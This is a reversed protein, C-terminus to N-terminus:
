LELVTLQYRIREVINQIRANYVRLQEALPCPLGVEKPEQQTKATDEKSRVIQLRGQLDGFAGELDEITRELRAAQNPILREREPQCTPAGVRQGQNM